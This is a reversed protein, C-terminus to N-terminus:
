VTDDTPKSMFDTALTTINAQEKRINSEDILKRIDDNLKEHRDTQRNKTVGYTPKFYNNM